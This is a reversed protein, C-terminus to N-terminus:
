FIVFGSWSIPVAKMVCAWLNGFNNQRHHWSIWHKLVVNWVKIFDNYWMVDRWPFLSSSFPLVWPARVDTPWQGSDSPTTLMRSSFVRLVWPATRLMRWLGMTFFMPLACAYGQGPDAHVHVHITYLIKSTVFVLKHCLNTCSEIWALINWAM